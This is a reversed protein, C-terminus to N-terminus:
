GGLERNYLNRYETPTMGTFKKFVEVFYKYEHFGVNNAIVGVRLSTESLLKRAENVRLLNVYENFTKGTKQRFITSFYNASINVVNAVESAKIPERYFQRIYELAREILWDNTEEHDLGLKEIITVLDEEFMKQLIEYSNHSFINVHNKYNLAFPQVKKRGLSEYYNIFKVLLECCIGVVEDLLFQNEKFYAFLTHSVNLYDVKKKYLLADFLLNEIEQPYQHEFKRVCLQDSAMITKKNISLLYRGTDLLKKYYDKLESISITRDGLVLLLSDENEINKELKGTENEDLEKMVCTLLINEDTFISFSNEGLVDGIRKEVSGMWKKKFLDIDETTLGRVRRQYDRQMTMLPYIRIHEHEKLIGHDENTLSIQKIISSTLLDVQQRREKEIETTIKKVNDVLEDIDVPKLLYDKVGLKIARKAYEFDDYGSIIIVRINPFNTKIFASLELGDVNPMRIDTIVIDIEPHISIQNIAEKGNYVAGVVEIDYNEWPITQSLGQCIIPEDDVILIKYSM